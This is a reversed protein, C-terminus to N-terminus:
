NFSFYKGVLISEYGGRGGYGGNGSYGTQKEFRFFVWIYWIDSMFIAAIAVVTAAATTETDEEVEVTVTAAEAAQKRYSLSTLLSPDHAIFTWAPLTSPFYIYRVMKGGRREVAVDGM